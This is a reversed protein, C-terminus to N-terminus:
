GAEEDQGAKIAKPGRMRGEAVKEGSPLLPRRRNDALMANEAKRTSVSQVPLPAASERKEGAPLLHGALAPHPPAFRM